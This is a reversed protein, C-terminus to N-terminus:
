NEGSHIIPRMLPAPNQRERAVAPMPLAIQVWWRWVGDNESQLEDRVIEAPGAGAFSDGQLALRIDELHMYAGGQGRLSRALLVIAFQQTRRQDTKAPGQRPAYKSGVYHILAAASLNAFDFKDPENPFAEVKVSGALEVKLREVIAAEVQEIALAPRVARLSVTAAEM